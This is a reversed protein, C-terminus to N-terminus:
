NSRIIEALVRESRVIREGKCDPLSCPESIFCNGSLYFEPQGSVLVGIVEHTDSRFVPSGSNGRFADLSAHFHNIAENEIVHANVAYKTPLGLPYGVSYVPIEASFDESQSWRLIPRDCKQTLTFVAVDLEDDSGYETYAKIYFVDEEKLLVTPSADADDLEYGFVVAYMAPPGQFVHQATCMTDQGILFATGFGAVTQDIFPETPCLRFIQELTGLPELLITGNGLDTLQTKEVVMAVSHRVARMAKHQEFTSDLQWVEVRSDFQSPGFLRNQLYVESADEFGGFREMVGKPLKNPYYLLSDLQAFSPLSIWFCVV